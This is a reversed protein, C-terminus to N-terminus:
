SGEQFHYIYVKGRSEVVVEELSYQGKKSLTPPKVLGAQLKLLLQDAKYRQKFRILYIHEPDVQHTAIYFYNERLDTDIYFTEM